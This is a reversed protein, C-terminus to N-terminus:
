WDPRSGTGRRFEAAVADRGEFWVARPPMTFCAADALLEALEDADGAEHAAIYRGLLLDEERDDTARDLRPPRRAPQAAAVSAGAPARQGRGGSLLRASGRDGPREM